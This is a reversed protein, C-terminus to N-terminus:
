RGGFRSQALRLANQVAAPMQAAHPRGYNPMRPMQPMPPRGYNPMQPRPAQPMQPRGYNPAQQRQNVLQQMYQAAQPYLRSLQAMMQPNFQGGMQPNFQAAQPMQAAGREYPQPVGYGRPTAMTTYMPEAPGSMYAVEPTDYQYGMDPAGMTTYMPEDYAAVPMPSEMYKTPQEDPYGMGLMPMTEDM